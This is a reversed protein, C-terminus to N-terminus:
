AIQPFKEEIQKGIGGSNPLLRKKSSNVGKAM